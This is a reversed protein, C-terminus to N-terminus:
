GTRGPYPWAEIIQWGQASRVLLYSSGPALEVGLAETVEPVPEHIWLHTPPAGRLMARVAEGVPDHFANIEHTIRASGHMAYRLIVLHDGDSRADVLALRDDPALMRNIEGGVTRAYIYRKQLDFRLKHSMAAPLALVLIIGLWALRPRWRPTAHHRWLLALGYAAFLLGVIGLHMNYRWYSAARRAEYEGFSTVYAFLLFANYAAFLTAAIIALRDFDSRVRWLARVGFALAVLMMGFYGGKSSAVHAMSALTEPLVHLMWQDPPPLSFEGSEIEMGVHLRWAAYVLLPLLVIRPALPLLPRLGIKTDRLAVLGLAGLTIAFLVLNVQKVSLLATAALGMQWAFARARERNEDAIANLMMWGLAAAFGLTVATATDAYATFVVKPVFTPNFATVALAGLACYGWGVSGTPPASLGLRVHVSEDPRELANRVLRAVLLGVSLLLLLNFIAGANEVLTGTVRSALYIAFTLGHPYAPFVSPSAPLTGRPFQDHEFLFRANPLWQTFEDWQSPSMAAAILLMPAALLVVRATAPNGLSQERTLLMLAAAAALAVLLLAIWTFPLATAAGIVTFLTGAIAWGYVLGGEDLRPRGAAAMGILTMAWACLLVAGLGALQGTSPTFNDIIASM